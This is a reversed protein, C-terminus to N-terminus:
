KATARAADKAYTPVTHTHTHCLYCFHTIYAPWCHAYAYSVLASRQILYRQVGWSPQNPPLLQCCDRLWGLSGRTRSLKCPSGGPVIATMISASISREDRCSLHVGRTSLPFPTSFPWGIPFTVCLHFFQLVSHLFGCKWLPIFLFFIFCYCRWDRTLFLVEPAAKKIIEM